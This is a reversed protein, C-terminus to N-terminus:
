VIRPGRGERVLGRVLKWFPRFTGSREGALGAGNGALSLDQCPFSAWVLMPKGPLEAPKLSAVDAVVYPGVGFYSRYAAAKKKCFENAFTGQWALGLGLRAMGGGAFFKYFPFGQFSDRPRPMRLRHLGHQQEGEAKGHEAAGVFGGVAGGD